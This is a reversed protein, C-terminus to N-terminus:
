NISLTTINYSRIYFSATVFTIQGRQYYTGTWWLNNVSASIRDNNSDNARNYQPVGEIIVTATLSAHIPSTHNDYTMLFSANNVKATVQCYYNYSDGNETYKGDDKKTVPTASMAFATASGSVLLALALLLALLKKM